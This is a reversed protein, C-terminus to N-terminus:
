TDSLRPLSTVDFVLEAVLPVLQEKHSHGSFDLGNISM